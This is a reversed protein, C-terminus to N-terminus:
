LLLIALPLLQRSLQYTLQKSISTDLFIRLIELSPKPSVSNINLYTIKWEEQEKLMVEESYLNAKKIHLPAKSKLFMRFDNAYTFAITLSFIRKLFCM